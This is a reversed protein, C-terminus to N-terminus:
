QKRSHADCGTDSMFRVALGAGIRAPDVDSEHAWGPIEAIDVRVVQRYRRFDVVVDRLAAVLVDLVIATVHVQEHFVAAGIAPLEGRRQALACFRSVAADVGLEGIRGGFQDVARPAAIQPYALEVAVALVDEIVVPSLVPDRADAVADRTLSANKAPTATM